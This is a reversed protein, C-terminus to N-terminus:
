IKLQQISMIQVVDKALSIPQWKFKNLKQSTQKRSIAYSKSNKIPEKKKIAICFKRNNELGVITIKFIM